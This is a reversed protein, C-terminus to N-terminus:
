RNIFEIIESVVDSGFIKECTQRHGIIQEHIETLFQKSLEEDNVYLTAARGYLSKSGVIKKVIEQATM